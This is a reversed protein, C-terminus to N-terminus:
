VSCLDVEYPCRKNKILFVLCPFINIDHPTGYPKNGPWTQLQPCFRRKHGRQVNTPLQIPQIPKNAVLLFYCFFSSIKDELWFAFLSLNISDILSDTSPSQYGILPKSQSIECESLVFFNTKWTWNLCLMSFQKIAIRPPCLDLCCCDDRQFTLMATRNTLLIWTNYSASQSVSNRCAMKYKSILVCM